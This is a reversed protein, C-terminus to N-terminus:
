GLFGKLVMAVHTSFPKCTLIRECILHLAKVVTHLRLKKSAIAKLFFQCDILVLRERGIVGFAIGQIHHLFGNSIGQFRVIAIFEQPTNDPANTPRCPNRALYSATHALHGTHHRRDGTGNRQGLGLKDTAHCLNGSTHQCVASVLKRSEIGHQRKGLIFV